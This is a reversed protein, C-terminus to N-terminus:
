LAVRVLKWGAANKARSSRLLKSQLLLHRGDYISQFIGRNIIVQLSEVPELSLLNCEIIADDYVAEGQTKVQVNVSRIERSGIKCMYDGSDAKRINGVQLNYYGNGHDGTVLLRDRLEAPLDIDILLGRSYRSFNPPGLWVVPLTQSPRPCTLTLTEGENIDLGQTKVQVNVSRIERSGIKCMYDGSDAKRINGVQLNYYGNGHDGTVLLRDRLEAPLDIDIQLGRSYRSFNPPGLWVVPLTKKNYARNVIYKAM